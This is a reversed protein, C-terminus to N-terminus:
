VECIVLKEEYSIIQYVLYVYFGYMHWEVNPPLKKKGLSIIKKNNPIPM